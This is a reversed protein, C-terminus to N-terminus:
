LCLLWSHCQIMMQKCKEENQLMQFTIFKTMEMKKLEIEKMLHTFNNIADAITSSGISLRKKKRELKKNPKAQVSPLKCARTRPSGFNISLTIGVNANDDEFCLLKGRLAVLMQPTQVDEEDNVNVVKIELNM